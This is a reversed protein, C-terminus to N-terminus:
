HRCVEIVQFAVEVGSPQIGRVTHAVRVRHGQRAYLQGIVDKARPISAPDLPREVGLGIGQREWTAAIAPFEIPTFGSAVSPVASVVISRISPAPGAGFLMPGICLMCLTAIRM